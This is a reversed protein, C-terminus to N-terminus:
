AVDTADKITQRLQEAIERGLPRNENGLALALNIEQAVPVKRRRAVGAARFFRQGLKRFIEFAGIDDYQRIIILASAPVNLRDRRGEHGNAGTHAHEVEGAEVL